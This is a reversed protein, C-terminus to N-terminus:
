PKLATLVQDLRDLVDRLGARDPSLAVLRAMIARGSEIAERAKANDKQAFYVLGLGVYSDSLNLQWDANGPNSKALRERIALSARYSNSRRKSNAEHSRSLASRPTLCQWIANGTRM